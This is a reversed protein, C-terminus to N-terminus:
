KHMAGKIKHLAVKRYADPVGRPMAKWRAMKVGLGAKIM